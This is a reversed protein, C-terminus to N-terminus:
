MVWDASSGSSLVSRRSADLRWSILELLGGVTIGADLLQIMQEVTFGADEGAMALKSIAIVLSPKDMGCGVSFNTSSTMARFQRSHNADCRLAFGSM